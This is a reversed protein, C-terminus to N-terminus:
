CLQRDPIYFATGRQHFKVKKLIYFPSVFNLFSSVETKHTIKAVKKGLKQLKKKKFTKCIWFRRSIVTGFVVRSQGNKIIIFCNLFM